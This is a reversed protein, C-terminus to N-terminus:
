AVSAARSRPACRTRGRWDLYPPGRARGKHTHAWCPCRSGPSLGPPLLDCRGSRLALAGERPPTQLFRPALPAPRRVPVPYPPPAKRPSRACSRSAGAVLPLRRLDPPRAGFASTRVQPSRAQRRFPRGRRFAPSRSTLLPWLIGGSAPSPGFPLSLSAVTLRPSPLGWFDPCSSSDNPRGPSAQPAPRLPSGEDAAFPSAREPATCM